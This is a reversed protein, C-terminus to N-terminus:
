AVEEQSVTGSDRPVSPVAIGIADAESSISPAASSWRSARPDDMHRVAKGSRAMDLLIQRTTALAGQDVARHVQVATIPEHAAALVAAVKAVLEPRYHTSM